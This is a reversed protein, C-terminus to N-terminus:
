LAYDTYSGLDDWSLVKDGQKRVPKAKIDDWTPISYDARSESPRNKDAEQTRKPALVDLLAFDSFSGLPDKHEVAHSLLIEVQTRGTSPNDRYSHKLLQLMLRVDVM